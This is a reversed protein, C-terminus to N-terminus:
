GARQRRRAIYEEFSALGRQPLEYIGTAQSVEALMARASYVTANVIAESRYLTKGIWLREVAEEDPHAELFEAARMLPTLDGLLGARHAHYLGTVAHATEELTGSGGNPFWGWSGDERQERVLFEACRHALGAHWGALAPVAHGVSYYPSVHWKDEFLVSPGMQDILWGTLVEAKDRHPFGPQMRLATLAHLNVSISASREDLYSRFHDKDWLAILPTDDMPYGGWLLVTLGV